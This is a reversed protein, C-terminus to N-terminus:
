EIIIIDRNVKRIAQQSFQIFLSRVRQKGNTAKECDGDLMVSDSAVDLVLARGVDSCDACNQNGTPVPSQLWKRYSRYRDGGPETENLKGFHIAKEELRM